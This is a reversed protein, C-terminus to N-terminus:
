QYKPRYKNIIKWYLYLIINPLEQRRLSSPLLHLFFTFCVVRISTKVVSYTDKPGLKTTLAIGGKFKPTFITIRNCFNRKIVPHKGKQLVILAQYEETFLDTGFFHKKTCCLNYSFKTLKNENTYFSISTSSYYQLVSNFKQTTTPRGLTSSVQYVSEM